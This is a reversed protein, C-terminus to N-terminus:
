NRRFLGNRKNLSCVHCAYRVEFLIDLPMEVLARLLGRNGKLKKPKSGGVAKGENAIESTKRKKSRTPKAPAVAVSTEALSVLPLDKLRTSSRRSM